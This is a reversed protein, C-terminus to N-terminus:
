IATMASSYLQIYIYLKHMIETKWHLDDITDYRVFWTSTEAEQTGQIRSQRRLSEQSHWGSEDESRCGWVGEAAVGGSIGTCWLLWSWHIFSNIFPHIFSNILSDIL